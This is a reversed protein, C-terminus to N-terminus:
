FLLHCEKKNSNNKNVKGYILKYAINLVINM